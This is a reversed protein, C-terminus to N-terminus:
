SCYQSQSSHGPIGLHNSTTSVGTSSGGLSENQSCFTVKRGTTPTRTPRPQNCVELNLEASAGSQPNSITNIMIPPGITSTAAAAFEKNLKAQSQNLFNDKSLDQAMFNKEPPARRQNNMQTDHMKNISSHINLSPVVGGNIRPRMSFGTFLDEEIQPVQQPMGPKLITSFGTPLM